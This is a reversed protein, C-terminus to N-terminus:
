ITQKNNVSNLGELIEDSVVNIENMVQSQLDRIQQLNKIIKAQKKCIYDRNNYEKINEKTKEKVESELGQFFWKKLQEFYENPDIDIGNIAITMDFTESDKKYRETEKIKIANEMGMNIVFDYMFNKCPKFERIQDFYIKM